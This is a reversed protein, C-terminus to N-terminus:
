HRRLFATLVLCVFAGVAAALFGDIYALVAAQKAVTSGLLSTAREAALAIDSSHGAVANRYAA